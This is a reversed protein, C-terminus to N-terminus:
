PTRITFNASVTQNCVTGATTGTGSFNFDTTLNVACRQASTGGWDFDGTITMQQLTEPNTALFAFQGNLTLNPDGNIVFGSLCSWNTVTQPISFSIMLSGTDGPVVGGIQGKLEMSGGGGESSCGSSYSVPITVLCSASTCSFHSGSDATSNVLGQSAVQSVQTAFTNAQADTMSGSSSGGCGACVICWFVVPFIFVIKCHRMDVVEVM